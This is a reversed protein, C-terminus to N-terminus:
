VILSQRFFFYYYYLEVECFVNAIFLDLILDPM